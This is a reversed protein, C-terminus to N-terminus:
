ISTTVPSIPSASSFTTNGIEKHLASSIVASQPGSSIHVADRPCCHGGHCLYRHGQNVADGAGHSTPLARHNSWQLSFERRPHVQTLSTWLGLLPISVM